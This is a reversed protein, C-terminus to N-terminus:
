VTKLPLVPCAHVRRCILMHAQPLPRVSIVGPAVNAGGLQQLMATNTTNYSKSAAVTQDVDSRRICRKITSGCNRCWFLVM